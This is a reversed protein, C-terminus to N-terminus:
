SGMRPLALPLNVLPAGELACYPTCLPPSVALPAKFPAKLPAKLSAKFPPKLPKKSPVKLPAKLSRTSREGQTIGGFTFTIEGFTFTLYKSPMKSSNLTKSMEQQPTM